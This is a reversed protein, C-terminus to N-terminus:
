RWRTLRGKLKKVVPDWFSLKRPNRGVPLGLYTFPLKMTKFNLLDALILSLSGDVKVGGLKSKHFSVKLGSVLEFCRLVFKLTLANQISAEGCFLTDDAFHLLSVEVENSRCMKHGIFKQRQVAQKFLGNLGEAVILFHFPAMPDGTKSGKGDCVGSLPEWQCASVCKCVELM